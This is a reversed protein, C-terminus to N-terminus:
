PSVRIFTYSYLIMPLLNSRKIQVEITKRSLPLTIHCDRNDEWGILVIKSISAPDGRLKDDM